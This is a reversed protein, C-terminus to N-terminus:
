RGGKARRQKRRAENELPRLTQYKIEHQGCANCVMEDSVPGFRRGNTDTTHCHPCPGHRSEFSRMSTAPGPPPPQAYGQNNPSAMVSVVDQGIETPHAGHQDLSQPAAPPMRAMVQTNDVLRFANQAPGAGFDRDVARQPGSHSTPAPRNPPFQRAGSLHNSGLDDPVGSATGAGFDTGRRHNVFHAPPPAPDRPFPSVGSRRNSGANNLVGSAPGAGVLDIARQPDFYRLPPNPPDLQPSRDDLGFNNWVVSGPGFHDISQDNGYLNFSNSPGASGPRDYHPPPINPRRGHVDRPSRASESHRRSHHSLLSHPRGWLRPRGAIAGVNSFGHFNNVAGHPHGM